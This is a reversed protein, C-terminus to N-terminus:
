EIVRDEIQALKKQRKDYRKFARDIAKPRIMWNLIWKWRNMFILGVGDSLRTVTAHYDDSIQGHFNRMIIHVHYGEKVHRGTSMLGGKMM